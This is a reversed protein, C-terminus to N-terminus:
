SHTCGNNTDILSCNVDTTNNTYWSQVIENTKTWTNREEWWFQYKTSCTNTDESIQKWRWGTKMKAELQSVLSKLAAIEQTQESLEMETRQIVAERKELLKEKKKLQKEREDDLM